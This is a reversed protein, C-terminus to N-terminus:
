AEAAGVGSVAFDLPASRQRSSRRESRAGRELRADTSARGAELLRLDRRAEPADNRAM